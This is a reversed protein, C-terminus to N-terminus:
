DIHKELHDLDGALTMVTPHDCVRIPHAGAKAPPCDVLPGCESEATRPKLSSCAVLLFLPALGAGPYAVRRLFRRM